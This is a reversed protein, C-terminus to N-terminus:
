HAKGARNFSSRDGFGAHRCSRQLIGTPKLVSKQWEKWKAALEPEIDGNEIFYSIDYIWNTGIPNVARIDLDDAGTPNMATVLEDTLEDVSLEEVLNDFGLYIPLTSVEDDADYASITLKYPDSVVVCRYTEMANNYLFTLAYDDYQDFTRYRGILSPAVYGVSWGPCVELARGLVTDDPDAPNWFNFTGEELFFKKGELEKEISYGTVSKIEELGDGKISPKMLQFVGYNETRIIKHGVVQDYFPTPIGDSSSPLDFSIESPESFKVDITLNIANPIIGITRRDKTQLLLNPVEPRGFKDFQIKKYDLYM